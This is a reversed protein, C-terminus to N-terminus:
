PKGKSLQKRLQSDPPDTAAAANLYQLVSGGDVPLELQRGRHVAYFKSNEMLLFAPPGGYFASLGVDILIVRGQFRPLIAVQPTHGVVIHRAQQNKLFEDLAQGIAHDNEPAEALGRYWLPGQDDTTVGDKLKAPDALEAHVRDNIFKLTSLSYKPSIGGHVFVIDNIKLIASKQRLWKGYKGDPGFAEQREAWGLPHDEEFKKRFSPLDVPSKGSEQMQRLAAQLAQERLTASDPGRFADYDAKVVYRLDGYLNMAEHNGLMPHLRGGAKQAQPELAMLLDMVKRSANGRDIFDGPIVLHTKGGTWNERADVLKAARLVTLLANLDGHIDGIAVIREVGEFTEQALAVQALALPVALLLAVLARRPM